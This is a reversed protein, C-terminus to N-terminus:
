TVKLRCGSLSQTVRVPTSGTNGGDKPCAIPSKFYFVFMIKPDDAVTRCFSFVNLVYMHVNARVCRRRCSMVTLIFSVLFIAIHEPGAEAWTAVKEPFLRVSFSYTM